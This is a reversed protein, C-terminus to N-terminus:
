EGEGIVQAVAYEEEHTITLHLATIGKKQALNHAKGNLFIRPMGDQNNKIEIELWNLGKLGTGLMKLAAEKAAFRAALHQPTSAKKQCYAIEAPTFIRRLFKEGWRAAMEEIRDIRVLDLGLGKIM